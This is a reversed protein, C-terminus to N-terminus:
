PSAARRRAAATCWFTPARGGTRRTSRTPSASTSRAGGAGQGICSARVSPTSDKPAKGTVRADAQAGASGVLQLHPYVAFLEFREGKRVWVELESEDKFIRIMIPSGAALGKEALRRKLDEMDPAAPQEGDGIKPAQSAGVGQVGLGNVSGVIPQSRPWGFCAASRERYMSGEVDDAGRRDKAAVHMHQAMSSNHVVASISM